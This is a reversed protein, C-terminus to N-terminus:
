KSGTKMDIWRAPCVVDHQGDVFHGEYVPVAHERNRIIAVGEAFIVHSGGHVWLIWSSKTYAMFSTYLPIYEDSIWRRPALITSLFVCVWLSIIPLSIFSVMVCQCIIQEILSNKDFNVSHAFENSLNM